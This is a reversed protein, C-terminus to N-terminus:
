VIFNYLNKIIYMMIIAVAAYIIFQQLSETRSFVYVANLYKNTQFLEPQAFATILPMLTGLAAIELLAGISMMVILILGAIKYKPALIQRIMNVTKM